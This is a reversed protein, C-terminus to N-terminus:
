PCGDNAVGDCDEDEPENCDEPAPTIEGECFGFGTGIANCISFGELCSGVNQTASPGTYCPRKSFPECIMSSGGAGGAGGVGASGVGGAGGADSSTPPEPACAGICAAISILLPLVRFGGALTM